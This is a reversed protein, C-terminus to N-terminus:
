RSLLREVWRVVDNGNAWVMLGVVVLLGVHSLRIRWEVSLPRGRVAEFLLFMLHGGDLIPIPLLNLIALNVSLFALFFLYDWLGREASAGSAEGITLLGGLNRPSIQGTVLDRVTTVLLTIMRGTAQTGERVAGAFGVPAFDVMPLGTAGVRGVTEGREQESRPTVETAFTRGAREIDLRLPAGPSAQIRRVVEGWTAVRDGDIALIRDGSQLGARAAPYDPVVRDLVPETLVQLSALLTDRSAGRPPLLLGVAGAGELTLTIEGAPAEALREQMATWSDVPEGGVAVVRAGTPIQAVQAASGGREPTPALRTEAVFPVGQGGMIAINAVWAFLLNMIVGASIVWTRAWIPKADFTREPPVPPELPEGADDVGSSTGGELSESADDDEMGAMKVYGGLPIASIVFDTEGWRFGWVRPGLGLSFRPAAIGVSKAAFFHGFEHILILVSLAVLTALITLV